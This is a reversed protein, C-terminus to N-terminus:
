MWSRRILAAATGALCAGVANALLDKLEVSRAPQLLQLTEVMAGFLTACVVAAVLARRPRMRPALLWFLLVAQLGYASGHLVTDPIGGGSGPLDPLLGGAVLLIAFLINILLPVAVM